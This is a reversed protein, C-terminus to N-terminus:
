TAKGRLRLLEWAEDRLRESSFEVPDPAEDRAVWRDALGVRRVPVPYNEATMAAVFTGIGTSVPAAELVLLAGTDRAARLIAAEDFPKVSAVDLVRVSVGVRDLDGALELARAVMPGLAVVALDTGGRLERAQGVAFTGDTVVPSGNPPLHVYAPGAREALAVTAGRTTPGDAPAVVTLAPLSRMACLEDGVTVAAPEPEPGSSTPAGVLKVDRRPRVVWRVVEPYAFALFFGAPASVFVPGGGGSREASIKIAETAPSPFAVYREPFRQAFSAHHLSPTLGAEVVVLSPFREASHVLGDHYAALPSPGALPTPTSSGEREARGPVLPGSARRREM